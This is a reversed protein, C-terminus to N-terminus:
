GRTCQAPLLAMPQLTPGATQLAGVLNGTSQARCSHSQTARSWNSPRMARAQSCAGWLHDLVINLYLEYGNYSTTMAYRM